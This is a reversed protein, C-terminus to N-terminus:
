RAVNSPLQWQKGLNRIQGVRCVTRFDCYSTCQEDTNYMPFEGRRIGRAIALVQEVIKVKLAAWDDTPTLDSGEVAHLALTKKFGKESIFWYGFQWPVAAENAFLLKEAAIAYLTLQMARGEVVDAKTYGGAGGTKYDVISFVARGGVAGVDIRDIQGTILVQEDKLELKLSEKTSIRDDRVKPLGFSAEFHRPRLSEGVKDYTAEYSAHQALYADLWRRLLKEDISRFARGLPEDDADQEAQLILRDVLEAYEAPAAERPLAHNQLRDNLGQHLDAMVRHLRSGRERYNIELGVDELSQVRLVRAMFFQFPCTGYQELQSASWPFEEDFRKALKERTEQGVLMGEYVGFGSGHSRDHVIHLGRVLNDGIEGSTRLVGALEVIDGRAAAATARIRVDFPNLIADDPAVPSLDSIADAASDPLVFLQRLEALYPSPLLPEAKENLAAYSLYLRRTARTVAEYFLLMEDRQRDIASKLPLGLKALQQYEVDSYLRGSSEPTPFSKETLDALFVHPVSLSRATAVNLVRVRGTEDYDGPLRESQILSEVRTRMAARDLQPADEDILAALEDASALAEAFVNWAARNEAVTRGAQSVLPHEEVAHMSQWLGTDRALAELAEAWGTPTAKRPLTDFAQALRALVPLALLADARLRNRRQKGDVFPDDAEIALPSSVALKQVAELLATRGHPIQLHRITRETAAEVGPRHVEPWAPAFYNSGVIGLLAGFPWDEADLAVLAVLATLSPSRSLSRGAEIASPIGYRTFVERVLPAVDDLTRFLVAIDDPRVPVPASESGEGVVLLRKVRRALQEMEGVAGVAAIFEIGASDAIATTERPSMFLERELHDLAPWAHPDHRAIRRVVASPYRHILQALTARPKTFLDPRQSEAEDPLSFIVEKSRKALEELIEHQTRTLDTFGDVVVLKLQAYPEGQGQQLLRRASWFRGELDYLQARNLLAQYDRYLAFLEQDRPSLKGQPAGLAASERCAEAFEEPWIEVRKLESIFASALDVLGPTDAISAFYRLKGRASAEALLREILLRKMRDDIPRVEEGAYALVQEAFQDFTQIGPNFCAPLEDTLLRDRVHEVARRNPALWLSREALGNATRQAALTSRYTALLSETKGSRAPGVVISIRASM